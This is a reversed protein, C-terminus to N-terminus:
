LRKERVMIKSHKHKIQEQHTGAFKHATELSTAGLHGYKYFSAHKFLESQIKMRKLKGAAEHLKLRLYRGIGFKYFKGDTGIREIYNIPWEIDKNKKMQKALLLISRKGLGKSMLRFPKAVGLREAHKEMQRIKTVYKAVYGGVGGTSRPVQIDTFGKGQWAEHMHYWDDYTKIIPEKLKLRKLNNARDRADVNMIVLHYHPRGHKEGYDGIAYYKIERDKLRERLRKIYNQLEQKHVSHDQPLQDDSYTLTVFASRESGGYYDMELQIRISWEQSKKYMCIDCTGCPILYFDQKQVIQKFWRTTGYSLPRIQRPKLCMLADSYKNM